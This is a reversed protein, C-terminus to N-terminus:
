TSALIVAEIQAAAARAQQLVSLLSSGDKKRSLTQVVTKGALAGHPRKWFVLKEAATLPALARCVDSVDERDLELFERPYYRQGKVAVSFLEGRKAAPGLAQPTLGWADALTKAPVVEGARVWEVRAAEGRRIAGALGGGGPAPGAAPENDAKRKRALFGRESEGRLVAVLVEFEDVDLKMETGHSLAFVVRGVVSTLESVTAELMAIRQRDQLFSSQLKAASRAM